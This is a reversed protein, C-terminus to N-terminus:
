FPNCFVTSLVKIYNKAATLSQRYEEADEHSKHLKVEKKKWIIQNNNISDHKWKRGQVVEM